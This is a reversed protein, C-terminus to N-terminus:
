SAHQSGVSYRLPVPIAEKNESPTATTEVDDAIRIVEPVPCACLVEPVDTSQAMPSGIVLLLEEQAMIPLHYSLGSNSGEDEAYELNLPDWQPCPTTYWVPVSCTCQLSISLTGILYRGPVICTHKSNELGIERCHGLGPCLWYM